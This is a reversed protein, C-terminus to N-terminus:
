IDAYRLYDISKAVSGQFRGRVCNSLQPITALVWREGFVVDVLSAEQVM